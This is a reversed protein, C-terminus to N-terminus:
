ETIGLDLPLLSMIMGMFAEDITERKSSILRGAAL